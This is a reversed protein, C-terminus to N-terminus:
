DGEISVQLKMDDGIVIFGGLKPRKAVCAGVLEIAAKKVEVLSSVEHEIRTSPLEPIDITIACSGFSGRQHRWTRPVLYGDAGM